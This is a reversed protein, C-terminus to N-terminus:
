VSTITQWAAGTYVCLKALTTDFVVLGAAPTVIATKQATTMNPLRVGKTTSQADLIASNNATTGIGLSGTVSLNGTPSLSMLSTASSAGTLQRWNFSTGAATYNNWYNVEGGGASFNWGQSGGQGTYPYIGSANYTNYMYAQVTLSGAMYNPATGGMYLNYRQSVTVTGTLLTVAAYTASSCTITFHTSDIVTTTKYSGQCNMTVTGTGAGVGSAIFSTGINNNAAGILTYNTTGVTLITVLAGTVLATVNATASVTVIQGSIYGHTASTTITATTGSCSINTITAGATVGTVPLAAIAGYFGFNNTAGILTSEAVVGYQSTVISGAGITSQSAYIHPLSPLTFAAAQTSINTAFGFANGTVDSLVAASAWAFRTTISGTLSKAILLSHGAIPAAGIGLNGALYNDATGSMYLNYRTTGASADIGGYFGYNNVAGTFNSNIYFGYQSAITSGAGVTGQAAIFSIINTTFTAAQTSPQSSYIYANSVDSLITSTTQSGFSYASGTIKNDILLSIGASPASGIGVNGSSDIRMREVSNTLFAIPAAGSSQLQFDGTGTNLIQLAGNAGSNRIIRCDYDTGVTSHFDIFSAGNGTRSAGLEFGAWGTSVGVGTSLTSGITLDGAMYNPATGSAYINYGSNATLNIKAPFTPNSAFVASGTGTEDTLAAALNASSPTQLFTAVNTGFQNSTLNTIWASGSWVKFVSTASNWYLAGVLLANGDNDVSPDSTKVGLYRDDFSDYSAAAATASNAASAASNSANTAQTTATSASAAAANKSSLAATASAVANAAVAVEQSLAPVFRTRWGGNRLGTIADDDDTVTSGDGGVTTSFTVSSM